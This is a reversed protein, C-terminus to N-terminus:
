DVRPLKPLMGTGETEGSDEDDALEAPGRRAFQRARNKTDSVRPGASM